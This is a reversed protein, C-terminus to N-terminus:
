YVGKKQALAIIGKINKVWDKHNDWETATLDKHVASAGPYDARQVCQVLQLAKAAVEPNVAGPTALKALLVAAAKGAEILQKKEAPAACMVALKGQLDELAPKIPAVEAPLAALNPAGPEAGASGDAPPVYKESRKGPGSKFGDLKPLGPASSVPAAASPAPAPAAVPFAAPVPQSVPAPMPAAAPAPQSVPSPVPAAHAPTPRAVPQPQPPDWQTVGSMTNVYYVRQSAPDQQWIWGVPLGTQPDVAELQVPEPGTKSRNGGPQVVAGGGASTGAGAFAEASRSAPLQAAGGGAAAAPQVAAAGGAAAAYAAAHAAEEASPKPPSVGVVLPQFPLPPPQAGTRDMQAAYFLRHRLLACHPDDSALYKAATVMQGQNALLAGYLSLLSSLDAGLEGISTGEDGETFVSVKEVLAHLAMSDTRGLRASQERLEHVWIAVTKPVNIACLYCLSASPSDQAELELRAGLQECLASFEESKGYTALIALTQRWDGLDSESVLEGLKSNIIAAVINLYPRKPAEKEFYRRRTTEWLEAGGCSALLLADAYQGREFCGEVAAAFNGVLLAKKVVQSETALGAAGAAAGAPAPEAAAAQTAKPPETASSDGDADGDGDGSPSSASAGEAEESGFFDEASKTTPAEAVGAKDGAPETAAAKKEAKTAEVEQAIKEADFGLKLLLKSRASDEFVLQVFRWVSAEHMGPLGGAATPKAEAEAAKAECLAKYDKVALAEEFKVSAQVVRADEVVSSVSLPRPVQVGGPTVPAAQNAADGFRVLKGGFGFSAGCPKRLWKPARGSHTRTGAMSHVQVKRDFSCTSLVARQKPAWAVEYRRGASMGFGGFGAGAASSATTEAQLEYVPRREYLDWVFTHNDKGCSLLLSTDSPCWSMSLVGQTHGQLQALPLTTSSRLDWMNIVPNTDDGMATVIQLGEIPNWAIDAIAGKKADRLECWSKKQRLDWVHCSGNASASALIHPVLTNWAVRSVEATHKAAGPDPAPVYPQKPTDPRDLNHILVQGDAGGSALLHNSAAIPNFDLGAVPGGHHKFSSMQPSPHKSILKSPDWLNITGDNMGGAILGSGFDSSFNSMPSWAISSFKGTTKVSGAVSCKLGRDQFDLKHIELEGGYDDFGGAGSDKTGLAVYNPM